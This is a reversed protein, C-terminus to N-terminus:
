KISNSISENKKKKKVIKKNIKNKEIIRGEKEDRGRGDENRRRIRNEEKVWRAM